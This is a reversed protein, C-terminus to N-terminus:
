ALRSCLEIQINDPDRRVIAAIGEVDVIRPKFELVANLHRAWAELAPRDYVEFSLHDLGCRFESFSAGDNEPHEVLAISIGAQPHVLHIWLFGVRANIARRGIDFGLVEAYWRASVERNRVSLDIHSIGSIPPYGGALSPQGTSV